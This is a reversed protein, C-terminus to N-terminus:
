ADLGSSDLFAREGLSAAQLAEAVQVVDASPCADEPSVLVDEAKPADADSRRSGELHSSRQSNDRPFLITSQSSSGSPQGDQVSSYIVSSTPPSLLSLDVNQLNGQMPALDWSFNKAPLPMSFARTWHKEREAIQHESLARSQQYEKERVRRENTTIYQENRDGREKDSSNSSKEDSSNSSEEDSGNCEGRDTNKVVFYEYVSMPQVPSETKDPGDAGTAAQASSPDAKPQVSSAHEARHENCAAGKAPSLDSEPNIEGETSTHLTEINQVDTSQTENRDDENDNATRPGDSRVQPVQRKRSPADLRCFGFKYRAEEIIKDREQRLMFDVPNMKMFYNHDVGAVETYDCFPLRLAFLRAAQIDVLSDGTGCYAKVHNQIDSFSFSLESEEMCCLRFEESFGCNGQRSGEEEIRFFLEDEAPLQGNFDDEM